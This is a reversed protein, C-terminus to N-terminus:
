SSKHWYENREGREVSYQMVFYSKLSTHLNVIKLEPTDRLTLIRINIQLRNDQLGAVM